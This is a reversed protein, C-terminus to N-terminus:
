FYDKMDDMYKRQIYFFENGYHLIQFQLLITIKENLVSQMNGYVGM